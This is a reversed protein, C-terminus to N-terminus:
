SQHTQDIILVGVPRKVGNGPHRNRKPLLSGELRDVRVGLQALCGPVGGDNQFASLNHVQNVKNRM